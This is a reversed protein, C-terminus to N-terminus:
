ASRREYDIYRFPLGNEEFRDSSWREIWEPGIDPMFTDGEVAREVRTLHLADALPLTERFLAAGGIVCLEAAGSGRAWALAKDLAPFWHAGDRDGEPQSHSVVLNDRGPLPRRPLSEWTKRGMLIPKGFTLEKFRKLDSPLHWPLGGDRGIVHNASVAVVLSILM